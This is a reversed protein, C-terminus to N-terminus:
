AELAIQSEIFSKEAFDAMAEVPNKKKQIAGKLQEHAIGERVNLYEEGENERQSFRASYVPISMQAELSKLFSANKLNKGIFTSVEQKTTGEFKIELQEEILRIANIQKQTAITELKM